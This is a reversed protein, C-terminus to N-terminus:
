SKGSEHEALRALRRIALPLLINSHFVPAALMMSIGGLAAGDDDARDKAAFAEFAEILADLQRENLEMVGAYSAATIPQTM